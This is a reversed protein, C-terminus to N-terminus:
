KNKMSSRIHIGIYGRMGKKNIFQHYTQIYMTYLTYYVFSDICNIM